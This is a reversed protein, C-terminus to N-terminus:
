RTMEAIQRKQQLVRFDIQGQQKLDATGGRRTYLALPNLTGGLHTTSTADTMGMIGPTTVRQGIDGNENLIKEFFGITKSRNQM